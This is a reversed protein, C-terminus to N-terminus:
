QKVLTYMATTSPTTGLVTNPILFGVKYTGAAAVNINAGNSDTASKGDPTAIDGWSFTWAHNERFKIQGATLTMTASWGTVGDNVYKPLDIDTSFDGGPTSSGIVSYATNALAFTIAGANLDLTVIYQGAAAPAYLNNAANYTVTTSPISSGSTAYKNNFNKAPLILFQNNGATFNIIGTYVGNSTASELSDPTTASWGQFAGVVYLWSTLNFPTVTLSIVNSYIPTVSSSVSQVLRVQVAASVGGTLGLKLLLANFDATNFGQSLVNVSLTTSAPNAWNDSPKDIELTNTVAAAFGYNAKTFNFKIVQTTDTLKAKQLALTTVSSTLTGPKGGNSTVVADNKKCGPLILLAIGSLALLRTLITKM